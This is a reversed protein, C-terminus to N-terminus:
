TSFAKFVFFFFAGAWPVGARTFQLSPPTCVPLGLPFLLPVLMKSERHPLQAQPPSPRPAPNLSFTGPLGGRGLAGGCLEGQLLTKEVWSM